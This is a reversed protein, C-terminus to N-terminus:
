QPIFTVSNGGHEAVKVSVLKVEKYNEKLFAKVWKATEEAFAECGVKEMLLLNCGDANQIEQFHAVLPDDKALVTRHDFTEELWKKIPKLEGFSIVWNRNDLPGEFTLEFALSYGHIHRCHTGEAKHQRFAVSLGVEHGYRKTVQYIGRRSLLM